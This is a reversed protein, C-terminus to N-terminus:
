HKSPHQADLATDAEIRRGQVWMVGEVDEGLRPVYGDLARESAYVPMRFEEDEPRMLVMELRYVKQGDHEFTDIAEIVGQFQADDRADGDSGRPLFIAAGTM